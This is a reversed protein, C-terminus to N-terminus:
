QHMHHLQLHMTPLNQLMVILCFPITMILEERIDISPDEMVIEMAMDVMVMVKEEMVTAMEEMVMAIEEMDMAMEEMVM